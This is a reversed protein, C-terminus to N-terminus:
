IIVTQCSVFNAPHDLNGHKERELPIQDGSALFRAPGVDLASNVLKVSRPMEFLHFLGLNEGSLHSLGASRMFYVPAIPTVVKPSENYKM